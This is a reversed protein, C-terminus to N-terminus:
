THKRNFPLFLNAYLVSCTTRRKVHGAMWQRKLAILQLMKKAKNRRKWSFRFFRQDLAVFNRRLQFDTM